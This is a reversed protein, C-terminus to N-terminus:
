ELSCLSNNILMLRWFENFFKNQDVWQTNKRPVRTSSWNKFYAMSFFKKQKEHLLEFHLIREKESLRWINKNKTTLKLHFCVPYMWTFAKLSTFPLQLFSFLENIKWVVNAYYEARNLENKLPQPIFSHTKHTLIWFIGWCNLFTELNKM